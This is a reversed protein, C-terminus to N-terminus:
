GVGDGVRSWVQYQASYTLVMLRVATGRVERCQMEFRKM